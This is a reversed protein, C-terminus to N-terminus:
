DKDGCKPATLCHNGKCICVPQKYYDKSDANDQKMLKLHIRDQHHHQGSDYLGGSGQDDACKLTQIGACM